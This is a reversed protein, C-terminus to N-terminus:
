PQTSRQEATDRRLQAPGSSSPAIAPGNPGNPASANRAPRSATPSLVAGSVAALTLPEM